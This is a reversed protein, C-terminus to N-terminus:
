AGGRQPGRLAESAPSAVPDPRSGDSSLRAGRSCRLAAVGPLAFLWFGGAPMLMAGLAGVALIAAGVPKPLPQDSMEVARVPVAMALVGAGAVVYWAVDAHADGANLVGDDILARLEEGFFAPTCALHVVGIGALMLSVPARRMPVDPLNLKM